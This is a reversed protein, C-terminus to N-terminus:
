IIIVPDDEDPLNFISPKMFIILTICRKCMAESISVSGKANLMYNEFDTPQLLYMALSPERKIIELVTPKLFINFIFEESLQMNKRGYYENYYAKLADLTTKHKSIDYHRKCILIIDTMTKNDM